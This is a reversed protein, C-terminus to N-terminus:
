WSSLGSLTAMNINPKIVDGIGNYTKKPEIICEIIINWLVVNQNLRDILIDLHILIRLVDNHIEIWHSLLLWLGYRVHISTNQM